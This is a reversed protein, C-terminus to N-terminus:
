KLRFIPFFRSIIIRHVLTFMVLYVSCNLILRLFRKRVALSMSDNCSIYAWLGATHKDLGVDSGSTLKVILIFIINRKGSITSNKLYFQYM